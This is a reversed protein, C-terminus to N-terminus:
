PTGNGGRATNPADSEISNVGRFTSAAPQIPMLLSQMAIGARALGNPPVYIIDGDELLANRETNGKEIWKDLEITMRKATKGEPGPRLIQIRNPDALRTPQATALVGLISDSGTYAYRGPSGVEGFIYIFRSRYQAVTVGVSVRQYYKAAKEELIKSIEECTMGGVQVKEVLPLSISGDPAVIIRSTLEPADPSHIELVDPPSIRYPKDVNLHKTDLDFAAVDHYRECGCIALVAFAAVLWSLWRPTPRHHASLTIMM